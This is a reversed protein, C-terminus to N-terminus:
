RLFQTILREIMHQKWIGGIILRGEDDIYVRAGLTKSLEKIFKKTDLNNYNLLPVINPIVTYRTGLYKINLPNDM